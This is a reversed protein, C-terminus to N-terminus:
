DKAENNSVREEKHMLAWIEADPIDFTKQLALWFEQKGNRIGKEIAAYTSRKCGIKEAIGQLTLNRKIRFIKLNLRM